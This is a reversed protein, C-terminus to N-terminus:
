STEFPDLDAVAENFHDLEDPCYTQVVLGAYTVADETIAKRRGQAANGFLLLEASTTTGGEFAECVTAADTGYLSEAAEVTLRPAVGAEQTAAVLEEARAQEEAEDADSTSSCAGLAVVAAALAL